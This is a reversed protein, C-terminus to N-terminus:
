VTGTSVNTLVGSFLDYVTDIKDRIPKSYSVKNMKQLNKLKGM